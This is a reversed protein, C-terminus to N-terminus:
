YVEIEQYLKNQSMIFSRSEANKIFGKEFLNEKGNKVIKQYAQGLCCPNNPNMASHPM